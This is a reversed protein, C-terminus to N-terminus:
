ELGVLFARDSPINHKFERSCGYIAWSWAVRHLSTIGDRVDFPAISNRLRGSWGATLRVQAIRVWRLGGLIGWSWGRTKHFAILGRILVLM